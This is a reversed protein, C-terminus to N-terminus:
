FFLNRYDDLPNEHWSIHLIYPLIRIMVKIWYDSFISVRTTLTPPELSWYTKFRIIYLFPFNSESQPKVSGFIRMIHFFAEFLLQKSNCKTCFVRRPGLLILLFIISSLNKENEMSPSKNHIKWKQVYFKEGLGIKGGM